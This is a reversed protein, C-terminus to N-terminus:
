SSSFLFLIFAGSKWSNEDEPGYISNLADTFKSTFFYIADKHERVQLQLTANGEIVVTPLAATTNATSTVQNGTSTVSTDM